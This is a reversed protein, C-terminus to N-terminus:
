IAKKIFKTSHNKKNFLEKLVDVTPIDITDRKDSLQNRSIKPLRYLDDAQLEKIKLIDFDGLTSVDFESVAEIEDNTIEETEKVVEQLKEKPKDSLENDVNLQELNEQEKTEELKSTSSSEDESNGDGGGELSDLNDSIEDLVLVEKDDFHEEHYSLYAVDKNEYMENLKEMLTEFHTTTEKKIGLQKKGFTTDGKIFVFFLEGNKTNKIKESNLPMFVNGKVYKSEM